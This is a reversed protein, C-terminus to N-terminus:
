NLFGSLRDAVRGVGRQAIMSNFINIYIPKVPSCSLLEARRYPSRRRSGSFWRHVAGIEKHRTIAKGQGFLDLEALRGGLPAIVEIMM